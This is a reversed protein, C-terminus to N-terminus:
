RIAYSKGGKVRLLAQGGVGDDGQAVLHNAPEDNWSHNSELRSVECHGGAPEMLANRLSAFIKVRRQRISASRRNSHMSGLRTVRPTGNHSLQLM